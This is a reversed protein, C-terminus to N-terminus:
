FQLLMGVLVTRWQISRPHKSTVTLVCLIIVIGLLSHMREMRTGLASDALGLSVSLVIALLAIAAVAYRLRRPARRIGSTLVRSGGNSALRSVFSTGTFAILMKLSIFVYIFILPLTDSLKTKRRLAVAAVFYGTILLWIGLCWFLKYRRWYFRIHLDIDFGRAGRGRSEHEKSGDEGAIAAQELRAEVSTRKTPMDNDNNSTNSKISDVEVKAKENNNNNNNNNSAGVHETHTDM